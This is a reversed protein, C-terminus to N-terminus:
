PLAFWRYTWGAPRIYTAGVGGFDFSTETINNILAASSYSVTTDDNTKRIHGQNNGLKHGGITAKGSYKTLDNHEDAWVIIYTPIFGLNHTVTHVTDGNEDTEIMFTGTHWNGISVEGGGAVNVAVSAYNTVDHTGNETITITGTPTVGDDSSGEGKLSELWEEETGEFGNDLAIQYASKGDVGDAVFMTQTKATGDDLTWGFTVNNGGDIPTISQITSNKGAIAGAGKVLEDAYGKAVALTQYDM